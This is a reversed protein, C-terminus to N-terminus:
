VVMDSLSLWTKLFYRWWSWSCGRLVLTGFREKRVSKTKRM